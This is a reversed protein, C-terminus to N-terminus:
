PLNSIFNEMQKYHRNIEFRSQQFKNGITLNYNITNILDQCINKPSITDDINIGMLYAAKIYKSENVSEIADITVGGIVDKLAKGRGDENLLVSPKSISNMFIHAHVRYGVHLDINQYYTKLNEASGSIDTWSFDNKKLWELFKLQMQHFHKNSGPSNLYKESPSHHFVTEIKSDKFNNKLALLVDQMQNFMKQSTKFSAGLSFGIKKIDATAPTEVSKKFFNTNYVAPCATMIFNKFGLTQLTNLTHYDRVSSKFGTSDIKKLLEITKDSLSYNHTNSWDGQKSYWGIGMTIIPVKIDNLNNCLRYIKPYMHKQLAPGGLLILAKSNNIEKLKSEDLIEWADYDILKVSPKLLSFLDKARDKILFDGANNKSGTLLVYQTM